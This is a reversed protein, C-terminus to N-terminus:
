QWSFPPPPNAFWDARSPAEGRGRMLTLRDRVSRSFNIRASIATHHALAPIKAHSFFEMTPTNRSFYGVLNQSFLINNICQASRQDYYAVWNKCSGCQLCNWRPPWRTVNANTFIFHQQM